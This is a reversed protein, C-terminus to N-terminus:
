VSKKINGKSEEEDEGSEGWEGGRMKIWARM